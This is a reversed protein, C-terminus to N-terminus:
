FSGFSLHFVAPEEGPQADLKWGMELNLPGVPTNVLIGVGAAHRYGFGRDIKPNGVKKYGDVDVQGGDYFITGDVISVLPYSFTSRLLYMRTQRTMKDNVSQLLESTPFSETTPDFGRITSPGGLYFGKKDFPVAGDERSSINQLYGYRVSNAWTLRNRYFSRYYTFSAASRLYEITKTSGLWPAGYEFNFRSQHGTRPRVLNDRYDLDFTLGTAAIEITELDRPGRINFDDSSARSYVEWIGTIHSTFDKEISWTQQLTLTARRRVYDTIFNSRTLNVRGKYRTDFLFPELYGVTFRNELYEFDTVNYNGDVRFSLGRGTGYINRYAVGLYGRVTFDRENTFGVGMQFLGPENETVRILVTRDAVETKDELTRIDVSTFHGTRQLRSVSEELKYPTLLDGEKFDLENRVVFEKTKRLGEIVISIARVQPGEFLRYVLTAQTNDANYQVLDQRENLVMIELYGSSKYLDKLKRVSEEIKRLRLPEGVNLDVVDYLTEIPFAKANEFIVKQIRTLQGEDLNITISVRDRASNYIARSSSIEALLYGQNQLAKKLNELAEDMDDKLYLRRNLMESANRNFLRTYYDASRSIRGQFQIKEIRVVPGEKVKFTVKTKKQATLRAADASVEVRAYGKRLYFNRLRNILEPVLNTNALPISELELTEELSLSSIQTSGEIDFVFNDDNQIAYKLYAQTQDQSLLIEPGQVAAEFANNKKLVKEIEDNIERISDDKLVDGIYGSLKNKLGTKLSTNAAQIDISHIRTANGLRIKIKLDILGPKFEPFEVDVEAYIYGLSRYSDQLSQAQNVLLQPDFVDGEQVTIIRRIESLSMEKVGEFSVNYIRSRRTLQIQLTHSDTQVAKVPDFQANLHILKILDDVETMTLNDLNINGLGVRIAEQIEVPVQSMDIKWKALLLSPLLCLILLTKRIM